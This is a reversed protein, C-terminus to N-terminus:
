ITGDSWTYYILISKSQQFNTTFKGLTNPYM